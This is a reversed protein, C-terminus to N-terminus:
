SRHLAEEDTSPVTGHYIIGREVIFKCDAKLLSSSRNRRASM